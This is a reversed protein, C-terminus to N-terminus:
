AMRSRELTDFQVFWTLFSGFFLQIGLSFLMASPILVRMVRAPDLDGFSVDAWL